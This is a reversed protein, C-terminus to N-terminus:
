TYKKKDDTHGEWWVGLHKKLRGLKKIKLYKSFEEYFCEVWNKQASTLSDDVHM